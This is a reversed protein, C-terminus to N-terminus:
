FTSQIRYKLASKKDPSFIRICSLCLKNKKHNKSKKTCAVKGIIPHGISYLHRRFQERYFPKNMCKLEVLSIEGACNSEHTSLVKVRTSAKRGSIDDTICFEKEKFGGFCVAVFVFHLEHKDTRFHRLSEKNQSLM